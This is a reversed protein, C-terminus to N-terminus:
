SRPGGLARFLGAWEAVTLSEPRRGPDVGWADLVPLIASKEQCLGQSLSNALTKRPQAFGAHLFDIFRPVDSRSVPRDADPLPELLLVASDVKPRPYFASAPVHRVTRVAAQAQTVVGLATLDGPAAALREAVEKQVMVVLRRAFPPGALLLHRLAPSTIHYPLNAVVVYDADFAASPDLKLIDREVVELKPSAFDARLWAALHPDVEVAVVRRAYQLLHQTLIGLGPGVELVDDTDRALGAAAVTARAVSEDALFSQSLRKRARLGLQRLRQAPRHASVPPEAYQAGLPSNM